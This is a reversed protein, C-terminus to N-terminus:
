RRLDPANSAVRAKASAFTRPPAFTVQLSKYPQNEVVFPCFRPGGETAASPRYTVARSVIPEQMASVTLL